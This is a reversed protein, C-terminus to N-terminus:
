DDHKLRRGRTHAGFAEQAVKGLEDASAHADYKFNIQTESTRVTTRRKGVTGSVRASGYGDAAMLIAADGIDVETTEVTEEHKVSATLSRLKTKLTGDPSHEEIRLTRANRRAVYDRLPKWLPGFLPNPLHVKAALTDVSDLEAIRAIFTRVDSLPEVECSVFFHEFSAVVVDAFRNPFAERQIQNWVHLFAIGSVSPIFVFPSAATIMDPAIHPVERHKKRDVLRVHGDPLFKTLRAFYWRGNPDAQFGTFTWCYDRHEVVAPKELVGVLTEASLRGGKIVRGLYFTGRRQPM